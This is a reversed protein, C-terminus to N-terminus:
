KKYLAMEESLGVIVVFIFSIALFYDLIYDSNVFQLIVCMGNSLVLIFRM